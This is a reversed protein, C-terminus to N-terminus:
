KDLKNKKSSNCSSCLLQANEIKTLGGKSWPHKHDIQADNYTLIRKCNKNKLPNPCKPKKSKSILETWLLDRVISPFNRKTDKQTLFFGDKLACGLYRDRIEREKIRDTAQMTSLVYERLTEEYKNLMPSSYPKIKMGLNQTQKSFTLLFEGAIKNDKKDTTIYSANVLKSLVVFLSYFDSKNKFRTVKITGEPFIEKIWKIIQVFKNKIKTLENKKWQHDELL